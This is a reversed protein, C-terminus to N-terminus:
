SAHVRALGNIEKIGRQRSEGTLWELVHGAAAGALPQDGRVGMEVLSVLRWHAGGWKQYPHVGLGGDPELGAMLARVRPGSGVESRAARVDASDERCGLLDVLTFYRVSPDESALLWQVAPDDRRM